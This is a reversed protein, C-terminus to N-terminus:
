DISRDIRLFLWFCGPILWQKATTEGNDNGPFSLKQPYRAIRRSNKRPIILSILWFREGAAGRSLRTGSRAISGREPAFGHGAKDDAIDFNGIGDSIFRM